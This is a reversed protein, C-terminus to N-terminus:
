LNLLFIDGDYFRLTKENKFLKQKNWNEIDSNFSVNSLIIIFYWIMAISTSRRFYTLLFSSIFCKTLLKLVFFRSASCTLFRSESENPDTNIQRPLIIRSNNAWIITFIM